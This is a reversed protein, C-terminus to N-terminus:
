GGGEWFRFAFDTIEPPAEADERFTRSLREMLDNFDGHEVGIDLHAQGHLYAEYGTLPGPWNESIPGLQSFAVVEGLSSFDNM